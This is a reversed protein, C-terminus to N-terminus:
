QLHLFMEEIQKAYYKQINHRKSKHTPTLLGNEISFLEATLYIDRVQVFCIMCSVTVSLFNRDCVYLNGKSTM